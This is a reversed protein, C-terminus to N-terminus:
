VSIIKPGLLVYWNTYSSYAKYEASQPM